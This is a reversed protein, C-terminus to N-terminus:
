YVEWNANHLSQIAALRNSIKDQLYRMSGATWNICAIANIDVIPLKASHLTSDIIDHISEVNRLVNCAQPDRIMIKRVHEKYIRARPIGLHYTGVANHLWSIDTRQCRHLSARLQCGGSHTFCLSDHYFINVNWGSCACM